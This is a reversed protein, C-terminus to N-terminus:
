TGNNKSNFKWCFAYGMNFKQCFLKKEFNEWLIGKQGKKLLVLLKM